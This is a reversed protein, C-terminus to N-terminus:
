DEKKRPKRARSKDSSKRGPQGSAGGGFIERMVQNGTAFGREFGSGDEGAFLAELRAREIAHVQGSTPVDPRTPLIPENPFRGILLGLDMWGAAHPFAILLRVVSRCADCPCLLGLRLFSQGEEEPPHMSLEVQMCRPTELYRLNGCKPCAGIGWERLKSVFGDPLRFPYRPEIPKGDGHRFPNVGDDPGDSM